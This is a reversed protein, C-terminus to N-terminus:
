VSVSASIVLAMSFTWFTAASFYLATMRASGCPFPACISGRWPVRWRFRTLPLGRQATCPRTLGACTQAAALTGWIVLFNRAAGSAGANSFRLERLGPSGVDRSRGARNVRADGGTLVRGTRRVKKMRRGRQFCARAGPFRAEGHEARGNVACGGDTWVRRHPRVKKMRRMFIGKVWGELMYDTCLGSLLSPNMVFCRLERCRWITYSATM